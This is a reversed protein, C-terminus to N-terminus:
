SGLPQWVGPSTEQEYHGSWTWQSGIPYSSSCFGTADLSGIIAATITNQYVGDLYVHTVINGVNSSGGSCNNLKIASGGTGWACNNAGPPIACCANSIVFECGWSYGFSPVFTYAQGLGNFYPAQAVVLTGDTPGYYNDLLRVNGSDLVYRIKGIVATPVCNCKLSDFKLNGALGNCPDDCTYATGKNVGTLCKCKKKCSKEFDPVALPM